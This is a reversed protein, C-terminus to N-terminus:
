AGFGLGEVRLGLGYVRFGSGQMKFGSGWLWLRDLASSEVGLGLGCVGFVFCTGVCSRNKRGRFRLDRVGCGSGWVRLGLGEFCNGVCSLSSYTSM